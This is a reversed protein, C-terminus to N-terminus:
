LLAVLRAEARRRRQRLTQAPCGLRAALEAVSHDRLRTLAILDADRAAIVRQGVARDLLEYSADASPDGGAPDFPLSELSVITPGTRGVTRQLRQRTDFLVNAAIRHPRRDFPYTRIREYTLAIVLSTPDEGAASAVHQYRRALWRMGPMIAQLLTRAALDDVAARRALAVLIQDSRHAQGRRNAHEVLAELDDLGNLEPSAESWEALRQRATPSRILHAWEEDLQQFLNM